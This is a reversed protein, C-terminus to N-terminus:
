RHEPSQRPQRLALTSLFNKRHDEIALDFPVSQGDEGTQRTYALSLLLSGRDPLDWRLKTYLNNLDLATHPSLGRSALNGAFLYYGFPGVTGSAEGRSDRTGREGAAFSLAGGLTREENPSKTVINIVGGMASGWSSSGPGKVIEIRAINQVPIPAIDALAAGLFNLTVGDLMVLIHELDAGQISFSAFTGLSGRDSIQIGAVNNLVEPLTHAGMIEIESATIVTINEATQSLPQPNRTASVILDKGEYFMELTQLDDDTAALAPSHLCALLASVAFLFLCIKKPFGHTM